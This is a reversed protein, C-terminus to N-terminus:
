NETTHNNLVQGQAPKGSNGREAATALESHCHNILKLTSSMKWLQIIKKFTQTNIESNNLDPCSIIKKFLQHVCVSLLFPYELSVINLCRNKLFFWFQFIEIWNVSMLTKCLVFFVFFFSFHHVMCHEKFIKNRKRLRTEREKGCWQNRCLDLFLSALLSNRKYWRTFYIPQNIVDGCWGSLEIQKACLMQWKSKSEM